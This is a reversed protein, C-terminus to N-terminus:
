SAPAHGVVLPLRVELRSGKGPGDSHAEVSGGHLEVLSRVLALGVGLGGPSRDSGQEGQVFAEFIRPVLDPPMGVGTDRVEIVAEPGARRLTVDIRGGPATFKASNHILNSFVQELRTGDALLRVPKAPLHIELQHRRAGVAARTTDVANRVVQALDLEQRELEIKGLTIRSVDLLDDVMRTLHRVQRRVIAISRAVAPAPSPLEALVYSANAIAGLPNRLEHALMSLFEDKRRDSEALAAARARLEDALRESERTREALRERMDRFAASLREVETTGSSELPAAPNGATLEAVADALTGLPRAIHRATLIGAAAAVPIVLLLLVFATERGRWVGALATGRPREVAIVWGLDPVRAFSVLRGAAAPQRGARVQRDWGPPLRSGPGAAPAAGNWRAIAGGAGDALTVISGSRDLRRALAWSDFTLAVTGSNTGDLALVPASLLVRPASSPLGFLLEVAVESGHRDSALRRATAPALSPEGTAAVIRGAADVTFLMASSPYLGRSRELLARQPAPAMALRGAMAAVAATRAGNLAVYDRVDVAIGAAEVRQIELAQRAVLIEEQASVVAVALILSLSTALVLAVALRTRLAGTDLRALRRRLWPLAAVAGGCGWYLALETWSAAPLAVVGFAILAGGALLHAGWLLGARPARRLQAYALLPGSLVMLAGTVRFSAPHALVAPDAWPAPLALVAIGNLTAIAGMLLAFFDGGTGSPRPREPMAASAALGLGLTGFSITGAWGRGHAFSEALALLTLASVLHSAITVPRRPRALAVAVLGAGAALMAAGWFGHYALLWEHLPGVFQHPAILFFAGIFHCFLGITWRLSELSLEPLGAARRATPLERAPM